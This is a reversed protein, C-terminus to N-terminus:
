LYREFTKRDLAHDYAHEITVEGKRVLEALSRDMDIMGDQSSTQIVASIEHTRAERILNAVANNNIHLRVAASFLPPRVVPSRRPRARRGHCQRASRLRADRVSVDLDMFLLSVDEIDHVSARGNNDTASCDFRLLGPGALLRWAPWARAARIDETQFRSARHLVDGSNPVRIPM